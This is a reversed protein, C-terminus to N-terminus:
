QYNLKLVITRQIDDTQNPNLDLQTGNLVLTSNNSAGLTVVVEATGAPIEFDEKEGTALTHQYVYANDIQVGVWAQANTGEFTLVAPQTVTNATMNIMGDTEGDFSLVMETPASSEETTSSEVIESSVPESSSEATSSSEILSSSSEKSVLAAPPDIIPEARWEEYMMIGVITLIGLAGVGLLIIPLSRWFFQLPTEEEPEEHVEKRTIPNLTPPPDFKVPEAHRSNFLDVLEDGDEGVVEAIQRIFARVYFTGPLEDFKDMEIAELYRKQIKTQQQLDDITLKRNLRAQRLRNGVNTKAM